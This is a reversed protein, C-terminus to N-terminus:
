ENSVTTFIKSAGLARTLMTATTGIGSAGGHILISQGAQFNAFQFLHSWVTMFTEMLAGAEAMTLNNPIPVANDAKVVAYEAYGGGAILACVADGEAFPLESSGCSVVEGAIELGPISTTGPPPNYLGKRQMVDPRNVGAAKVKVLIEDSKPRPQEVDVQKIVEPGGAREFRIAKM